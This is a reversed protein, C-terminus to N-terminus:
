ADAHGQADQDHQDLMFPKIKSALTGTNAIASNWAWKDLGPHHQEFWMGMETRTSLYLNPHLESMYPPEEGKARMAEVKSFSLNTSMMKSVRQTEAWEAYVFHADNTALLPVSFEKALGAIEINLMRQEDFDHPQIELWFDDGFRNKMSQIYDRVAASDGSGILQALWSQFCASSCILGERYQDLLEDDVCPYQYFGGGDSQEGYATSVIRLLNHWGKLNKALLILHWAQRTMRSKRNPRYYAEVGVIPIIGVKRCATIHHLAGSLTGHDTQALFGQGLEAARDAYEKATGVADLRSFEGHRHLHGFYDTVRKAGSEPTSDRM